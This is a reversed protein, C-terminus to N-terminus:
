RDTLRRMLVMRNAHSTSLKSPGLKLWKPMATRKGSGSGSSSGVTKGAGPTSKGSAADADYNPPVPLDEALALVEPALPAPVTVDLPLVTFNPTLPMRVFVFLLSVRVTSTKM